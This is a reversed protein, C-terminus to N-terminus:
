PQNLRDPWSLAGPDIKWPLLQKWQDEQEKFPLNVLATTADLVHHLYAGPDLKNLVATQLITYTDCSSKAGVPSGSFNWNKRGLSIARVARKASLNDPTLLPPGRLDSTWGM